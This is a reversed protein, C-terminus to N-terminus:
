QRDKGAFIVHKLDTIAGYFKKAEVFANKYKYNNELEKCNQYSDFIFYFIGGDVETDVIQCGSAVLFAAVGLEKTRYQNEM